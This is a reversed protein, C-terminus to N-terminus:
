QVYIHQIIFEGYNEENEHKKIYNKSEDNKILLKIEIQASLISFEDHLLKDNPFAKPKMRANDYKRILYKEMTIVQSIYNATKSRFDFDHKVNQLVNKKNLHNTAYIETTDTSICTSSKAPIETINITVAVNSTSIGPDITQEERNCVRKRPHYTPFYNSKENIMKETVPVNTSSSSLLNKEEM